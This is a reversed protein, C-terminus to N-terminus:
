DRILVIVDEIQSASRLRGAILVQCSLRLPVLFCAESLIRFEPHVSPIPLLRTGGASEGHWCRRDRTLGVADVQQLGLLSFIAQPWGSPGPGSVDQAM